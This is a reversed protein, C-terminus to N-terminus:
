VNGSPSQLLVTLFREIPAPEALLGLPVSFHGQPRAFINSVPVRWRDVLARGGAYPMLDDAEGLAVVIRDPAMVPVQTPEMLPSWHNLDDVGWGTRELEAKFGAGRGLSGDVLDLMAGTTTVLLMADPQLAAPWTQSNCAVLQSTLAGLSVGGIAVIPSGLQRAWNLLVAAEAVWAQLLTLFGDPGRAMIPEGGYFGKLMRQAHWPATPRVIRVGHNVLDDLPDANPPWMELEVGIGHLFIVTPPDVVGEPEIV